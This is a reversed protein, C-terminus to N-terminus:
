IEEIYEVEKFTLCDVAEISHLSLQNYQTMNGKPEIQKIFEDITLADEKLMNMLRRMVGDAVPGVAYDYQLEYYPKSSLRNQIVFRGWQESADEFVRGQLSLLKETNLHYKLIIPKVKISPNIENADLAKKKAWDVVQEYNSTLYFGQGFDSGLMPVSLNIGMNRVILGKLDITGHYCVRFKEM